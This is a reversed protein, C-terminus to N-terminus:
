MSTAAHAGVEVVEHLQEIELRELDVEEAPHAGGIALPCPHEAALHEGLRQHRRAAGDVGVAVHM